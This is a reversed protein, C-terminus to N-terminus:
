INVSSSTYICSVDTFLNGLVPVLLPMLVCGSDMPSVRYDTLYSGFSASSLNLHQQMFFDAMEPDMVEM